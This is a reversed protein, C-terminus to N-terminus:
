DQSAAAELSESVKRPGFALFLRVLAEQPQRLGVGVLLKAEMILNPPPAM